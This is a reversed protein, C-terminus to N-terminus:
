RSIPALETPTGLLFDSSPRDTFILIQDGVALPSDGDVEQGDRLTLLVRERAFAPVESPRRGVAEGMPVTIRMVARDTGEMPMREIDTSNVLATDIQNLILETASVAIDVGLKQFLPVNSPNNVRAITHPVKFNLKALQCAVLNDEDDGTVAALVDAREIGSTALFAMEDGDGVLCACSGLQASISSARIRDKEILAVEYGAKLLRHTLYFGVKGGGVVIVYAPREAM